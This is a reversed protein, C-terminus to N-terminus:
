SLGGNLIVGNWWTMLPALIPYVYPYSWNIVDTLIGFM